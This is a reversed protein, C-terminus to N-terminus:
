KKPGMFHWKSFCNKLSHYTLIPISLVINFDRHCSRNIRYINRENCVHSERRTVLVFSNDCDVSLCSSSTHVDTWPLFFFIYVMQNTYHKIIYVTTNGEFLLTQCSSPKNSLAALLAIVILLTSHDMAVLQFERRALRVPYVLVQNAAKLQPLWICKEM